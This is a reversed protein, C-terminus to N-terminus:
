IKGNSLSLCKQRDKKKRFVPAAHQAVVLFSARRKQLTDVAASWV